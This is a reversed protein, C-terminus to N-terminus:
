TRAAGEPAGGRFPNIVTLGAAEFPGTDRTAVGFNRSSAVAAILADLDGIAHGVARMTARLSGYTAAAAEDFTLVRGAFLPAVENEFRTTLTTRRRGVPLAALGYHIEALSVTTVYLTTICQADLWAVVSPDPAPRLPESIVNTDLVIM